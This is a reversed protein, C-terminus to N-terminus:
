YINLNLFFYFDSLNGRNDKILPHNGKADTPRLDTKFKRMDYNIKKPVLREGIVSM